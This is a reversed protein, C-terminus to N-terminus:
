VSATLQQIGSLLEDPTIPKRLSALRRKRVEYEQRPDGDCVMIVPLARLEERVVLLDYLEIGNMGPLRYAIVLLIPTFYKLLELAQYRETAFFVEFSTKQLITTMMQFCLSLDAEVVLVAQMRSDKKNLV